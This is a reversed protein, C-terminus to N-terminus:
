LFFGVKKTLQERILRLRLIRHTVHGNLSIITGFPLLFHTLLFLLSYYGLMYTPHEDGNRLNREFSLDGDPTTSCLIPFFAIKTSNKIKLVDLFGDPMLNRDKNWKKKSEKNHYKKQLVAKPFGWGIGKVGV